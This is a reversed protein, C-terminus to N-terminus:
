ITTPATVDANGIRGIRGPGPIRTVRRIVVGRGGEASAGRGAVRGEILQTGAAIQASPFLTPLTVGARVTGTM